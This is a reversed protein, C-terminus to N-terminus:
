RQRQKQQVANSLTGISYYGSALPKGTNFLSVLWGVLSLCILGFASYILHVKYTKFPLISTSETHSYLVRSTWLPELHLKSIKCTHSANRLKKGLHLPSIKRSVM